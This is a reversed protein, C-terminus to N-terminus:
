SSCPEKKIKNVLLFLCGCMTAGGFFYFLRKVGLRFSVVKGSAVVVVFFNLTVVFVFNVGFVMSEILM